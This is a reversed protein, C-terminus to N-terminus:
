NQRFHIPVAVQRMVNHLCNWNYQNWQVLSYWKTRLYQPEYNILLFSTDDVWMVHPWPRLSLDNHMEASAFIPLVTSGLWSGRTTIHAIHWTQTWSQTCSQTCSSLLSCDWWTLSIVFSVVTLSSQWLRFYFSVQIQCECRSMCAPLKSHEGPLELINVPEAWSSSLAVVDHLQRTSRCLVPLSSGASGARTVHCEITHFRQRERRGPKEARYAYVVTKFSSFRRQLYTSSCYTCPLSDAHTEPTTVRETRTTSADVPSSRGLVPARHM